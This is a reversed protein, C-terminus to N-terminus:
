APLLTTASYMCQIRSNISFITLAITVPKCLAELMTKLRRLVPWSLQALPIGAPDFGNRRLAFADDTGVAFIMGCPHFHQLSRVLGLRQEVIFAKQFEILQKILAICCCGNDDILINVSADGSGVCRRGNAEIRFARTIFFLISSEAVIM